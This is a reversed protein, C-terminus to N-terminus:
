NCPTKPNVSIDTFNGTFKWFQSTQQQTIPNITDMGLIITIVHTFCKSTLAVICDPSSNQGKLCAANWCNRNGWRHFIVDTWLFESVGETSESSEPENWFYLYCLLMSASQSRSGMTYIEMIDISTFWVTQVVFKFKVFM